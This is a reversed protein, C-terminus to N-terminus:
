FRLKLGIEVSRPSGLQFLPTLGSRPSGSGLMLNLASVPQGFFPSNRYRVPDAPNVHNAVNFCAVGIELSASDALSFRRRLAADTQVMGFGSIANRGLTGQMEAPTRFSAANLRRGGPVGADATWMSAGPVLDPRRYNDWGFGLANESELVDIPFGSRARAMVQMKWDATLRRWPGARGLGRHEFTLAASFGHRVDFSSAGRDHAASYGPAVLAVASDWSGNDISHGWTYNAIGEVGHSLRRRYQVELAHFDSAGHNTAVSGGATGDPQRASERRLLRRGGSGVYSLALADSGTLGQEWAVNWEHSYPLKLNPVFGTGLSQTGVTGLADGFQWRNFPFGNIPDTVVSFGLDYFIGWGARLVSRDTLRYAAGARPAVQGYRTPWLPGAQPITVAPVSPQATGTGGSTDPPIVPSTVAGPTNVPALVTQRISPAPSIEWRVGYTLTLRSTPRWTDQAYVSLTEILSSAQDAQSVALQMPGGALLTALDPWIGAVAIAPRGRSPTLRQYEVGARWAHTGRTWGLTEVLHLQGQRNGDAAGSLLQGVGGISIGYIAIAPGGQPVLKPLNFTEESGSVNGLWRAEVSDGAIRLRSDTTFGGGLVANVGLTLSRTRFSAHEVRRYGFETSSPAQSYRGFLAIRPTLAHDIRLSGSDLRSPSSGRATNESLGGGLSRGTPPPFNGLLLDLPPPAARRSAESPTAAIWAFPARLRLGEWAAFFFTHNRRIPGGATGAWQNLRLPARGYGRAAAFWDNAALKENRFRYAFSGHWDNSGSRTTIRVQAGPLRGSQPAFSSTEIRVEQLSDLAALNQLGGFATMSPLAGGSFQAPAASGTIGSNASVGDLSFYNTNARQGNVSFQGAEGSSAPTAVVGPALEVLTLMGRGDLPLTDILRRGATIAVPGDAPHADKPSDEVTVLEYISGVPMVFDLRMRGGAVLEVNLRAVTQFGPKRATVKYVGPEMAGIAYQGSGDTHVTRRIGTDENVASLTVDVLVAGSVDKAQGALQARGEGHFVPTALCIV